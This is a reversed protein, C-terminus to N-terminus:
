IDVMNCVLETGMQITKHKSHVFSYSHQVFDATEQVGVEASTLIVVRREICWLGKLCERPNRDFCQRKSLCLLAAHWLPQKSLLAVDSERLNERYSVTQATLPPSVLPHSAEAPLPSEGQFEFPWYAARNYRLMQHVRECVCATGSWLDSENSSSHCSTGEKIPNFYPSPALASKRTREGLSVQIFSVPM